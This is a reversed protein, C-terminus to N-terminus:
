SALRSKPLDRSPAGHQEMCRVAIAALKRIEHLSEPFGDVRDSHHTWKQQAQAAYQNLMLIFEGLTHTMYYDRDPMVFSDQFTRETDIARYVESRPTPKLNANDENRDAMNLANQMRTLIDKIATLQIPANAQEAALQARYERDQEAFLGCTCSCSEHEIHIECGDAHKPPNFRSRNM